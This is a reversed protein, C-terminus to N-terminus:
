EDEQMPDRLEMGRLEFEHALQKLQLEMQKRETINEHIVVAQPSSDSTFPVVRGVFWRQETPSHCPYEMEFEEREGSFVSRIGEAFATAYESQDGTASDCVRLYDTGEMVKSVIAGNSTAFDRWAENVAVITGTSDIIAIHAPLTSLFSHLERSLTAPRERQELFDKLAETRIRWHKGLKICPLREEKCWRYFLDYDVWGM